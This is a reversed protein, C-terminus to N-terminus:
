RGWGARTGCMIAERYAEGERSRISVTVIEYSRENARGHAGGALIGASVTTIRDLRSISTTNPLDVLNHRTPWRSAGLTVTAVNPSTGPQPYQGSMWRQHCNATWMNFNDYIQQSGARMGGVGDNSNTDAAPVSEQYCFVRVGNIPNLALGRVAATAGPMGLQAGVDVPNPGCTSTNTPYTGRGKVPIEVTTGNAAVVTRRLCWNQNLRNRDGCSANNSVYEWTVREIGAVAPIADTNVVLRTPGAEVIDSFNPNNATLASITVASGALDTREGTGRNGMARRVDYEFLRAAGGAESSAQSMASSRSSTRLMNGIAPFIAAMAMGLVVLVVIMEIM